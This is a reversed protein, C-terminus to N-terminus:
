FRLLLLPIVLGAAWWATVVWKRAAYKYAMYIGTLSSWLLGIAVMLFFIKLPLHQKRKSVVPVSAAVASPAPTGPTGTGAQVGNRGHGHGGGDVGAGSAGPAPAKRQGMVMTQNKHIQAMEAIWHPPKYDSGQVQEHLSFTQVAGTFAFFMLSPSILLGLYLHTKRVSRLMGNSM